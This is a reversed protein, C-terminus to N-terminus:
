CLYGCVVVVLHQVFLFIDLQILLYYFAVVVVRQIGDKRERDTLTFILLTKFPLIEIRNLISGVNSIGVREM